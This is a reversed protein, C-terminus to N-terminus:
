ASLEVQGSGLRFRFPKGSMCSDFTKKDGRVWGKYYMYYMTYYM